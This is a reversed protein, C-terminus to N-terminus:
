CSFGKQTHTHLTKFLILLLFKTKTMTQTLNSTAMATLGVGVKFVSLNMKSLLSGKMKFSGGLTYQSTNAFGQKEVRLGGDADWVYTNVINRKGSRVLINEM